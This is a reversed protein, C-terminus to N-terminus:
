HSRGKADDHSLSADTEGAGEGGRVAKVESVDRARELAGVVGHRKRASRLNNGQDRSEVNGDEALQGLVVRAVDHLVQLDLPHAVGVGRDLSELQVSLAVVAAGGHEADDAHDAM